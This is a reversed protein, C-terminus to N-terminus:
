AAGVTSTSPTPPKKSSDKAFAAASEKNKVEDKGYWYNTVGSTNKAAWGKNAVKWSSGNPMEKTVFELQLRNIIEERIIQRLENMKIKSM